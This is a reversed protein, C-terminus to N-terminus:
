DNTINRLPLVDESFRHCNAVDSCGGIYGRVSAWVDPGVSYKELEYIKKRAQSLLQCIESYTREADNSSEHNTGLAETAAARGDCYIDVNSQVAPIDRSLLHETNSHQVPASVQQDHSQHSIPPNATPQMQGIQGNAAARQRRAAVAKPHDSVPKPMKFDQLRRRVSRDSIDAGLERVRKGIATGSLGHQRYEILCQNLDLFHGVVANDLEELSRLEGELASSTTPADTTTITTM